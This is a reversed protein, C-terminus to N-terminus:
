VNQSRLFQKLEQIVYSLVKEPPNGKFNIGGSATVTFKFNYDDINLILEGKDVGKSADKIVEKLHKNEEEEFSDIGSEEFKLTAEETKSGEVPAKIKRYKAGLKKRFKEVDIKTESVEFRTYPNKKEKETKSIKILRLIQFGEEEEFSKLSLIMNKIADFEGRIEIFNDGKNIISIEKKEIRKNGEIDESGSEKKAVYVFVRQPLFVNVVKGNINIEGQNSDFKIQALNYFSYANFNFETHEKLFNFLNEIREVQFVYISSSTSFGYSQIFQYFTKLNEEAVEPFLYYGDKRELNKQYFSIVRDIKEAKTRKKTIDSVNINELFTDIHEEDIRKLKYKLASSRYFGKM